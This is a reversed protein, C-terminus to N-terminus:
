RKAKRVACVFNFIQAKEWDWVDNLTYPDQALIEKVQEPSEAVINVVSGKFSPTSGEIIPGDMYVGGSVMIGADFMRRVNELHAARVDVRRELADFKDPIIAVYEHKQSESMTTSTVSLSRRRTFNGINVGFIRSHDTPPDIQLYRRIGSSGVFPLWIASRYHAVVSVLM